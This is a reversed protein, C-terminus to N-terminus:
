QRNGPTPLAPSLKLLGVGPAKLEPLPLRGDAGVTGQRAMELDKDANVLFLEFRAPSSWPLGRIVLEAVGNTTDFNSLLVAARSKGSDMGACVALEGARGPPTWVREPTDLLARFAKFAYFTKQPVGNFNFMGFM